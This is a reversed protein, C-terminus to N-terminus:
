ALLRQAHEGRAAQGREAQFFRRIDSLPFRFGSLFASCGDGRRCGTDSIWSRCRTQAARLPQREQLREGIEGGAAKRRALRHPQEALAELLRRQAREALPQPLAEALSLRERAGHRFEGRDEVVRRHVENLRALGGAAEVVHQLAEDLVEGLLPLQALLQEGGHRIRHEDAAERDAHDNKEDEDQQGLDFRQERRQAALQRQGRAQQDVDGMEEDVVAQQRQHGQDQGGDGEPAPPLGSGAAVTMFKLWVSATSISFPM